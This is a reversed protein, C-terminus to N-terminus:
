SELLWKSTGDEMLFFSTGDEMLWFSDGGPAAPAPTSHKPICAVPFM